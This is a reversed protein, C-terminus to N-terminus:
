FLRLRNWSDISYKIRYLQEAREHELPTLGASKLTIGLAKEFGAAIHKAVTGPSARIPLLDDLCAIRRRSEQIIQERRSEEPVRFLKYYADPDFGFLLSGQQLMGDKWRRQASGIMKRGSCTIEYWSTSMFCIPSRGTEKSPARVADAELGMRHLGEILGRGIEFFAGQITNPLETTHVGSAVSYTLDNGHLVARGGTIRRVIPVGGKRCADPDMDREVKQFYGITLAPRSWTYFRLTPPALERRCSEVIAEDVAMNWDAEGSGDEIIRWESM